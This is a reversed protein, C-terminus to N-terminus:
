QKDRRERKRPKMKRTKLKEINLRSETNIKLLRTITAIIDEESLM